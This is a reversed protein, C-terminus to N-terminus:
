ADMIHFHNPLNSIRMFYHFTIMVDSKINVLDDALREWDFMVVLTRYGYKNM